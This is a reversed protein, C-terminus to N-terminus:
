PHTVSVTYTVSSATLVGNPDHMRVCLSASSQTNASLASSITAFDNSLVAACTVGNWTGMQFGVLSSDPALTNITATIAGAAGTTFTHTVAGNLNVTGTFTETVPNTAPPTPATDTGNDCGVAALAAALICGLVVPSRHMM